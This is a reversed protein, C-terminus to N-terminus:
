FDGIVVGAVLEVKYERPKNVVVTSYVDPEPVISKGFPALNTLKVKIPPPPPPPDPRLPAADLV